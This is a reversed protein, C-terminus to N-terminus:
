GENTIRLKYIIESSDINNNNKSFCMFYNLKWDTYVLITYIELSNKNQFDQFIFEKTAIWECYVCGFKNKLVDSSIRLRPM